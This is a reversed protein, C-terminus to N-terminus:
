QGNDSMGHKHGLAYATRLMSFVGTVTALLSPEIEPAFETEGHIWANWLPWYYPDLERVAATRMRHLTDSDIEVKDM